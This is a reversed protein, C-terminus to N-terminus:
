FNFTSFQLDRAEGGLLHAGQKPLHAVLLDCKPCGTATLQFQTGTMEKSWFLTQFKHIHGDLALCRWLSLLKYSSSQCNARQDEFM